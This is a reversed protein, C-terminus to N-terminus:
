ISSGFCHRLAEAAYYSHYYSHQNEGGAQL